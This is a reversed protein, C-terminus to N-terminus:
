VQKEKTSENQVPEFNLGYPDLELFAGASYTPTPPNSPKSDFRASIFDFPDASTSNPPAPNPQPQSAIPMGPQNMSGFPPPVGPRGYGNNTMGNYPMQWGDPRAIPTPAPPLPPRALPPPASPLVGQHYTSTSLRTGINIDDYPNGPQRRFRYMAAERRRNRVILISLGILTVVAMLAIGFMIWFLSNDSGPQAPAAAPTTGARVSFDQATPQSPVPGSKLAAPMKVKQGGLVNEKWLGEMDALKVGFVAMFAGDEDNRRLQDLVNSWVNNGYSNILFTVISRGEAYALLASDESAPWYKDLKSLPILADNRYAQLLMDDYEKISIVNQNYVAFGEDLWRPAAGQLFQYLAAHSLEHPIGEGIFISSNMDQPAIAVIEIGGYKSFGGSWEPVDPFTYHYAASSGYITIYIQQQPDMNFRRKYTALSDAALQYMLQGYGDDGNYWRVTVQPGERQYWTHTSDQYVVTQSPTQLQVNGDSLIWYYIVPMGTAISNTDESLFYTAGGNQFNVPETDERGKTGFKLKLEAHNITSGDIRANVTFQIGERYRVSATNKQVIILGAQAHAPTSSVFGFGSLMVLALLFCWFVPSLRARVTPRNLTM